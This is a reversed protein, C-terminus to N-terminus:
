STQTRTATIAPVTSLDNTLEVNRYAKLICLLMQNYPSADTTM